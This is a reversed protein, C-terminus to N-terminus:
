IKQAVNLIKNRLIFVKNLISKRSFVKRASRRHKALRVITYRRTEPVINQQLQIVYACKRFVILKSNEKHREKKKQLQIGYIERMKPVIHKEAYIVYIYM